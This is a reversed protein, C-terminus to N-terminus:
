NRKYKIRSPHKMWVHWDKPLDYVGLGTMPSDYSGVLVGNQWVELRFALVKAQSCRDIRFFGRKNDTEGYVTAAYVEKAAECMCTTFRAPDRCAEELERGKFTVGEAKFADSAASRDMQRFTKPRDWLGEYCVLDGDIECLCAMRLVPKRASARAFNMSVRLQGYVFASQSDASQRTITLRPSNFRVSRIDAVRVPDAVLGAVVALVALVFGNM